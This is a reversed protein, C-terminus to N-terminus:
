EMRREKSFIIVFRNLIIVYRCLIDESESFVRNSKKTIMLITTRIMRFGYSIFVLLTKV